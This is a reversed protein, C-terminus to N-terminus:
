NLKSADIYDFIIIDSFSRDRLYLGEQPESRLDTRSGVALGLWVCALEHKLECKTATMIVTLQSINYCHRKTQSKSAMHLYQLPLACVAM